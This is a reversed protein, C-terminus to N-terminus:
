LRAMASDHLKQRGGYFWTVFELCTCGLAWVDCAPSQTAYLDYEPSRYTPSVPMTGPRSYDRSLTAMGFYTIKLIGLDGTSSGPYWLINEPKVRGHMGLSSKPISDVAKEDRERLNKTNKTYRNGEQEEECIIYSDSFTQWTHIRSLAEALGRCQEAVWRATRADQVPHVHDEWYAFLDM